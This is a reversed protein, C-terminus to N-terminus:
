RTRLVWGGRDARAVPADDPGDGRHDGGGGVLHDEEGGGLIVEQVKMAREM